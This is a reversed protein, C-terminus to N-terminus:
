DPKNVNQTIPEPCLRCRVCSCFNVSAQVLDYQSMDEMSQQPAFMPEPKLSLTLSKTMNANNVTVM